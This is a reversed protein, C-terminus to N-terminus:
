ERRARIQFAIDTLTGKFPTHEYLGRAYFEAIKACAEREVKVAEAIRQKVEDTTWAYVPLAKAKQATCGYLGHAAQGCDPCFAVNLKVYGQEDIGGYQVITGPQHEIEAV